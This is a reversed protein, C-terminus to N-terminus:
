LVWRFFAGRGVTMGDAHFLLSLPAEILGDADWASFKRRVECIGVVANVTDPEYLIIEAVGCM